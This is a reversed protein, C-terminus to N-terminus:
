IMKFLLTIIGTLTTYLTVGGLLIADAYGGEACLPKKMMESVKGLKSKFDKATDELKLEERVKAAQEETVDAMIINRLQNIEDETTCKSIAFTLISETKYVWEVSINSDKRFKNYLEGKLEAFIAGREEVNIYASM